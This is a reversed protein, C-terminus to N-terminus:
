DSKDESLIEVTVNPNNKELLCDFGVFGKRPLNQGLLGPRFDKADIKKLLKNDAYVGVKTTKTADKVFACGRIKKENKEQILLHMYPESNEFCRLREYFIKKAKEYMQIDQANHQKILLITKSDLMSNDITKNENVNTQLVELDIYYYDNIMEISKAYEESLGIFGYLEVPKGAMYNSQVNQFRKEQIFSHFDKSYNNHTKFHNYHSVVQAIPERVFTLTNLTDFVHAYKSVLFHGSLCMKDLTSFKKYFGYTDEEKYIIKKIIESTNEEIKGYDFFTNEEGFYKLAALRFSTGATKPIHVFLLHKKM